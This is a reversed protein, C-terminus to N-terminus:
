EREEKEPKRRYALWEALCKHCNQKEACDKDPPCGGNGCVIQIAEAADKITILPENATARRMVELALEFHAKQESLEKQLAPSCEAIIEDSERVADDFYAIAALLATNDIM